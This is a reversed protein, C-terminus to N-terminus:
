PAQNENYDKQGAWVAHDVGREPAMMYQRLIGLVELPETLTKGGVVMRFFGEMAYRGTFLLAVTVGHPPSRIYAAATDTQLIFRGARANEEAIVIRQPDRFALRHYNEMTGEYGPLPKLHYNRRLLLIEEELLVEWYHTVRRNAKEPPFAHFRDRAERPDHVGPVLCKLLVYRVRECDGRSSRCREGEPSVFVTGQEREIYGALMKRTPEAPISQAERVVWRAAPRASFRNVRYAKTDLETLHSRWEAVRPGAADSPNGELRLLAEYSDVFPFAQLIEPDTIPAALLGLIPQVLDELKDRALSPECRAPDSCLDKLRRGYAEVLGRHTSGEEEQGAAPDPAPVLLLILFVGFCAIRNLLLPIRRYANEQGSWGPPKSRIKGVGRQM